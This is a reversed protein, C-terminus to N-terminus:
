LFADGRNRFFPEGGDTQLLCRVPAQALYFRFIGCGKATIPFSSESLAQFGAPITQM